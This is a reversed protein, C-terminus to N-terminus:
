RWWEKEHERLHLAVHRLRGLRLRLEDCVGSWERRAIRFRYVCQPICPVEGRYIVAGRWANGTQQGRDSPAGQPLYPPSMWASAEREVSLYRHEVLVRWEGHVDPCVSPRAEGYGVEGRVGTWEGDAGRESYLRLRTGTTHAERGNDACYGKRGSFRTRWPYERPVDGRQVRSSGLSRHDYPCEYEQALHSLNGM